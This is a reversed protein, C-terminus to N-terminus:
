DMPASHRMWADIFLAILIESLPKASLWRFRHQIITLISWQFIETFDSIFLICKFIDDAFYRGDYLAEIGLFGGIYKM